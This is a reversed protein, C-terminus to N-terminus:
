FERPFLKPHKLRHLEARLRNAENRISQESAILQANAERLVENAQAAEAVMDYSNGPALGKQYAITKIFMIATKLEPNM